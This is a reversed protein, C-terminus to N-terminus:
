EFDADLVEPNISELEKELDTSSDYKFTQPTPSSSIEISTVGPDFLITEKKQKNKLILTIVMILIIIIIASLLIKKNM